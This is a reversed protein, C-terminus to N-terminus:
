RQWIRMNATVWWREHLPKFVTRGAGGDVHVETFTHQQRWWVSRREAIRRFIIDKGGTTNAREAPQRMAWVYIEELGAIPSKKSEGGRLLISISDERLWSPKGTRGVLSVSNLKSGKKGIAIIAVESRMFCRIFDLWSACAEATWLYTTFHRCPCRAYLSTCFQSSSM